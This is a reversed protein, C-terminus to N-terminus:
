LSLIELQIPRNYEFTQNGIKLRVSEILIYHWNQLKVNELNIANGAVAIPHDTQGPVQYKFKVIELESDSLPYIGKLLLQGANQLSKRSIVHNGAGEVYVYPEPAKQVFVSDRILTRGKPGQLAIKCWGSKRPTFYIEQANFDMRLSTDCSCILNEPKLINGFVYAQEQGIFVPMPVKKAQIKKSLTGPYVQIKLHERDQGHEFEFEHLGSEKPIYILSDGSPIQVPRTEGNVKLTGAWGEDKHAYFRIPSGVRAVSINMAMKLIPSAKKESTLDDLNLKRSLIKLKLELDELFTRAIVVPVHKFRYEIWNTSKPNLFGHDIDEAFLKELPLKNEGRAYNRYFSLLRDHLAEGNKDDLFYRDTKSYGKPEPYKGTTPDIKLTQDFEDSMVKLFRHTAEISADMDDPLDVGM